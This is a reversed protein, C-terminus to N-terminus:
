HQEHIERSNKILLDRLCQKVAKRKLGNQLVLEHLTSCVNNTPSVPRINAHGYIILFVACFGNRINCATLHLRHNCQKNLALRDASCLSICYRESSSIARGVVLWCRNMKDCIRLLIVDSLVLPAVAIEASPPKYMGVTVSVTATVSVTVPVTM